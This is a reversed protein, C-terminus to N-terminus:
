AGQLPRALLKTKGDCVGQSGRGSGTKINEFRSQKLRGLGERRRQNEFNWEGNEGREALNLRRLVRQFVGDLGV